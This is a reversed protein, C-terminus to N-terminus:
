LQKETILHIGIEVTVFALGRNSVLDANKNGVLAMGTGYGHSLKDRSCGGRMNKERENEKWPCAGSWRHDCVM